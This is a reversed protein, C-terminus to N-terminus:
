NVSATREVTSYDELLVNRWDYENSQKDRFGVDLWLGFYSESDDAFTKKDEIVEISVIEENAALAIVTNENLFRDHPLPSRKSQIIGFTYGDFDNGVYPNSGDNTIVIEYYGSYFTHEPLISEVKEAPHPVLELTLGCVRSDDLKPKNTFM